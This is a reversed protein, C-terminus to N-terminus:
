RESDSRKRKWDESENLAAMSLAIFLFVLSLAFKALIWLWNPISLALLKQERLSLEWFSWPGYTGVLVEGSLDILVLVGLTGFLVAVVTRIRHIAPALDM